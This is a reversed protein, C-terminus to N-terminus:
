PTMPVTAILVVCSEVQANADFDRYPIIIGAAPVLCGNGPCSPQRLMTCLQAQRKMVLCFAPLHANAIQALILLDRLATM